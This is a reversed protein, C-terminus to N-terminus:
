AAEEAGQELALVVIQDVQEEITLGTTDVRIADPTPWPGHQSQTERDRDDREQIEVELQAMDIPNGADELDRFRRRAREAVSAELFVKLEADPFIATTTDRGELVIGGSEGMSKQLSVLVGRVRPHVAVRSAANSVEQSRIKDSVDAGDILTRTGDGSTTQEVKLKEAIAGVGDGDDLNVPAALSALGIARYMAGTDMYLYNLRTAVAKATTSKGAGAPGDIAVIIGNERV